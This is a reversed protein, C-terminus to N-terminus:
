PLPAGGETPRNEPLGELASDEVQEEVDDAPDDYVEPIGPDSQAGTPGVDTQNNPDDFATKDDSM